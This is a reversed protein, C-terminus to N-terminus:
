DAMYYVIANETNDCMNNKLFTTWVNRYHKRAELPTTDVSEIGFNTMLGARDTILGVVYDLEVPTGAVQSGTKVDTIAPTVNISARNSQSQWYTIPEYNDSITLLEKNFIEPLVNAQADIFLPEFLYIHQDSYPTHRLLTYDVGNVNKDPSWHYNASRETLFSTDTKVRAVFFALFEKLYTTRLEASTYTTGYKTNFAATLNVVSNPMSVAMDYVSGIKNLLNTRNWAERESEIDNSHETLYGSIFSNFDNPNSFATKLANEYITTCYQWTVAGGFNMELPVPQNQEWQSKTSSAVGEADVNKGATYGDALNTYLNTNFAGSALADKSYFSIKRIRSSYADTNIEEMKNLRAKYPRTSVISRNLVLSLTNLVNEVGSQLLLEGASVFSSLDTVKLDERGTGQRVLENILAYADQPTLTRAM